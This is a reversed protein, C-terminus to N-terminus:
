GILGYVMEGTQFLLFIHDQTGAAVAAKGFAKVTAVAGVVVADFANQALGMATAQGPRHDNVGAVGGRIVFSKQQM